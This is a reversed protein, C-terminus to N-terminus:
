ITCQHTNDTLPSDCSSIYALKIKDIESWNNKQKDVMQRTQTYVELVSLERRCWESYVIM